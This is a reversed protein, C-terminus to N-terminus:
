RKSEKVLKDYKKKLDAHEKKLIEHQTELDQLAQAYIAADEQVSVMKCELESITDKLRKSDRRRAQQEEALSKALGAVTQQLVQYSKAYDHPESVEVAVENAEIEAKSARWKSFADVLKAGIGGAALAIIVQYILTWEM